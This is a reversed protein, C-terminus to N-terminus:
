NKKERSVLKGQKYVETMDGKDVTVTSYEEIFSNVQTDINREANVIKARSAGLVTVFVFALVAVIVILGVIKLVKWTEKQIVIDLPGVKFRKDDM